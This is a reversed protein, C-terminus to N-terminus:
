QGAGMPTEGERGPEEDGIGLYEASYDTLLAMSVPVLMEAMRVYRTQLASVLEMSIRYLQRQIVDLNVTPYAAGKEFGSRGCTHSAGAISTPIGYLRCTIPRFAYLGCQDQDTLLPCRVREGAVATLIEDEKKGAQADRYAKRKIRYIRRDALDAADLLTQRQRGTIHAEFRHRLYLAEVFSLDFLAHCCDSCGVHCTVCPGYDQQVKSFVTETKEVLKEYSAFYPQFDFDINM